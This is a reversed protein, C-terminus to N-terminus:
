SPSPGNPGIYARIKTSLTLAEQHVAAAPPACHWARSWCTASWRSRSSAPSCAACIPQLALRDDHRRWAMAAMLMETVVAVILAIPLAVQLGTIIQCAGGSPSRWWSRAIAQVWTARRGSPEREVGRIGDRDSVLRHRRAGGDLDQVPRLRRAVPHRGPLFAIKPMPFGVSIIPDFFWHALRGRSMAMGLVIGAAAAIASRGHRSLRHRPTSGLDGSM